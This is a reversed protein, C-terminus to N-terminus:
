TGLKSLVNAVSSLDQKLLERKNEDRFVASPHYTPMIHVGDKEQWVGRIETIKAKRDVIAQVAISGLCVIVAPRILEIQRIVLPLAEKVESTRPTRNGPPRIKLVNTVYADERRLGARQLYKDLLRGSNGVFPRGAAAEKEGPAEGLLLLRAHDPGEGFVLREDPDPIFLRQCVAHLAELNGIAQWDQPVAAEVTM